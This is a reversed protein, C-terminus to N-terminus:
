VATIQGDVASVKLTKASHGALTVVWWKGKRVVQIESLEPERCRNLDLARQTADAKRVKGKENYSQLRKLYTALADAQAATAASIHTSVREIYHSFEPSGAKANANDRIGHAVIQLIYARKPCDTDAAIKLLMPMFFEDMLLLDEDQSMLYWDDIYAWLRLTEDNLTNPSGIIPSFVHREIATNLLNAFARCFDNPIDLSTTQSWLASSIKGDILATKFAYEIHYINQQSQSDSIFSDSDFGDDRAYNALFNIAEHLNM